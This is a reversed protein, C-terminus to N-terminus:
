RSYITKVIVLSKQDENIIKKKQSDEQIMPPSKTQPQTEQQSEVKPPQPTDVKTKFTEEEILPANVGPIAPITCSIPISLNDGAFVLNALSPWIILGIISIIRIKKM